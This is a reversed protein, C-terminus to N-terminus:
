FPYDLIESMIHNRIISEHSIITSDKLRPQAIDTFWRQLFEGVTVKGDDIFIGDNIERRKELLWERVVKQSKSYKSKRQGNPLTIQAVWLDKKQNKYITGEGRSRRRKAM